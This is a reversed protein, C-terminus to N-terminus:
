TRLQYHELAKAAAQIVSHRPKRKRDAALYAIEGRLIELAERVARDQSTDDYHVPGGDDLQHALDLVRTKLAAPIWVATRAGPARWDSKPGTNPRKGGHPGSM